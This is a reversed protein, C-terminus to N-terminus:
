SIVEVLKTASFRLPLGAAPRDEILHAVAHICRHVAGLRAMPPMASIIRRPGATAPWMCPISWWSTSARTRPPRSPCWRVGLLEELENVMITGGNARVEDMMNLALVMPIELEMLQM